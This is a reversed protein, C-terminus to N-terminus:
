ISLSLYQFPYPRRKALFNEILGNGINDRAKLVAKANFDKRQYLKGKSWQDVGELSNPFDNLINFIKIFLDATEIVVKCGIDHMRDDLEIKPFGHCIMKGTDIGKDIFHMTVGVFEIEGNVFPWFNTGSGRYYPSIGQHANIVKGPCLSFLEEKLIGPGFVAIGEINHSKLVNIVQLSNINGRSINITEIDPWNFKKFYKDESKKLNQFHSRLLKTEDNSNGVMQAQNGKDEAIIVRLDLKSYIKQALFKHRLHNSTLLAIKM